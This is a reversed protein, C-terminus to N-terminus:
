KNFVIKGNKIQFDANVGMKLYKLKGIASRIIIPLKKLDKISEGKADKAWVHHSLKIRLGDNEFACVKYLKKLLNEHDM